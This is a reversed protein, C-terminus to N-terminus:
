PTEVTPSDIFPYNNNAEGDFQSHFEELDYTTPTSVNAHAVVNPQMNTVEQEGYFNNNLQPQMNQNVVPTPITNM